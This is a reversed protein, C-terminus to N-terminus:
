YFNEPLENKIQKIWDSSRFFDHSKTPFWKENVFPKIEPQFFQPYNADIYKNNKVIKKVIYEDFIIIQEEILFLLIRKNSKFINFIETNSYNKKLCDKFIQLIKEIKSHFDPGRYHNNAIKVILHLLLQFEHKDDYIKSDEFISKLIQFNEETNTENELYNLLNEQIKQMLSISEIPNAEEMM